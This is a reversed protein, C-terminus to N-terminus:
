SRKKMIEEATLEELEDLEVKFDEDVVQLSDRVLQKLALEYNQEELVDIWNDGVYRLGKKVVM